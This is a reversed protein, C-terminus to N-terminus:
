IIIAFTFVNTKTLTLAIDNRMSECEYRKSCKLIVVLYYVVMTCEVVGYLLVVTHIYKLSTGFHFLGEVPFIQCFVANPQLM